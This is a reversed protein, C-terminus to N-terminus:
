KQWCDAVAGSSSMTVGTLFQNATSEMIAKVDKYVRDAVDKHAILSIEDHVTNVIWADLNNDRIYKDIEVLSLKIMNANGSQVPFNAAEKEVKYAKENLMESSFYRRRKIIPDSVIYGRHLTDKATKDLYAKMVPLSEYIGDLVKKAVDVPIDLLESVRNAGAKYIVSFLVPKHETRLKEDKKTITIEGNSGPTTTLKYKRGTEQSIITYSKSALMSHLDLGDTISKIILPDQSNSAAIVIEAGSLDLTLYRYERSPPIFCSRYETLAPINQFNVFWKLKKGNDDTSDGSSFRGTATFCQTFNTHIRGTVPNIFNLFSEGYTSIRKKIKKYYLLFETFKALETTPNNKIFAVLTDENVSDLEVGCRAYIDLIQISSGYNVNGTNQNILTKSEGFMGLQEVQQKARNRLYISRRLSTHNKSLRALERDMLLEVKDARTKNNKAISQWKPIDIDIGSLEINGVIPTVANELDILKVQDRIWLEDMQTQAIERLYQVDDAAYMIEGDTFEQHDKKGIFSQRVQKKLEVGCINKVLTALSNSGDLGNMLVQNGLFTCYLNRLEVGYHYKIFNYDFKTNHGIMKSDKIYNLLDIIEDRSITRLDIVFQQISDGLILLLPKHFMPHLGTTETDFGISKRGLSWNKVLELTGREVNPASVPCRSIFKIM